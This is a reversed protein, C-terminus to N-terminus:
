ERGKESVLRDVIDVIKKYSVSRDFKEEACRRANAKMIDTCRNENLYLKEITDALLQENEPEINVGFDEKSVLQIFEPNELTNVMASGSSLYDGIKNVISQPAGKVFSNVTVDSLSLYAAMKEYNVYGLFCVNHCHLQESLQQMESLRPGTGMILFRIDELERDEINKAACILTKIDYSTGITGAYTVWFENDGKELEQTYKDAGLDFQALDCGVYVTEAPINRERRQFARNTYDNSTGIVADANRYVIEADRMFPYYLISSLVPVNFVMTMAEPWLDEIDVIFPIKQKRCFESVVAGVNNAPISCYIADYAKSKKLFRKVHKAAIYNSWIRKVDINKKYGPVKIFVNKFKYMHSKLEDIDRPKKEFHQFSSSILDVEYGADAFTNAMYYFRSTGKESPLWAYGLSIIGIRRKQEGSM